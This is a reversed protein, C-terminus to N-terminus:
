ETTLYKVCKANLDIFLNLFLQLYIKSAFIFRNITNFSLIIIQEGGGNEALIKHTLYIRNGM